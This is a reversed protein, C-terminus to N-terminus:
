FCWNVVSRGHSGIATFEGSIQITPLCLLSYIFNVFYKCAPLAILTDNIFVAFIFTDEM